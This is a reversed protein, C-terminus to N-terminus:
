ALVFEFEVVKDASNSFASDLRNPIIAKNNIKIGQKAPIAVEDAKVLSFMNSKVMAPAGAMITSVNINPNAEMRETKIADVTETTILKITM